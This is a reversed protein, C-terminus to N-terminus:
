ILNLFGYRQRIVKAKNKVQEFQEFTIGYDKFGTPLELKKYMQELDYDKGIFNKHQTFQLQIKIMEVTFGAVLIGHLLGGAKSPFLHSFAHVMAHEGGSTTASSGYLFTSIGSLVINEILNLLFEDEGELLADINKLMFGESPLRPNFLAEDYLTGKLKNSLLMDGQATIRAMSDAFGAKIMDKPANKLIELDFYVEKPLQANFSTSVSDKVLSSTSSTYGNMSLATAYIIFPKKAIFSAFKSLDCLVGSGVSCIGDKEELIKSLKIAAEYTAGENIVFPLDCFKQAISVTNNDCVVLYNQPLTFQAGSGVFIGSILGENFIGGSLAALSKTINIFKM